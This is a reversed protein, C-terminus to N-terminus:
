HRGLRQLRRCTSRPLAVYMRIVDAEAQGKLVIAKSSGEAILIRAARQGEAQQEM